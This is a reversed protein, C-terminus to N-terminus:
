QETTLTPNGQSQPEPQRSSWDSKALLDLRSGELSLWQSPLRKSTKTEKRQPGGGAGFLRAWRLGQPSHGEMAGIGIQQKRSESQKMTSEENWQNDQNSESTMMVGEIVSPQRLWWGAASDSESSGGLPWSFLTCQGTVNVSVTKQIRDQSDLCAMQSRPAMERDQVPIRESNIGRGKLKNSPIETMQRFSCASQALQGPHSSPTQHPKNEILRSESLLHLDFPLASLPQLLLVLEQYHTWCPGQWQSLFGWHRYFMQIVDRCSHLHSFWFGLAQSNLLGLIFANFRLSNKNLQSCKKVISVLSHLGQTSPGPRTSALVVDWPHNRRQGVILDLKYPKLEDWLISSIAPCLHKLVLHSLAPNLSSNGVRIKEDPNQSSNEFHETIRDVASSVAKLFAKKQLLDISLPETSADPSLIFKEPPRDTVCASVSQQMQQLKWLFRRPLLEKSAHSNPSLDCGQGSHGWSSPPRPSTISTPCPPSNLSTVSTLAPGFSSAKLMLAPGTSEKEFTLPGIPQFLPVGMPTPSQNQNSGIVTQKQNLNTLQIGHQSSTQGYHQRSPDDSITHPSTVHTWNSRLHKPVPSPTCTSCTDSSSTGLPSPRVLAPIAKSKGKGKSSKCLYQSLLSGLPRQKGAPPQLIFPQIPLSTPRQEKSYRVVTPDATKSGTAICDEHPHYSVKRNDWSTSIAEADKCVEAKNPSFARLLQTSHIESSHDESSTKLSSMSGNEKKCLAVEAYSAVHPQNPPSFMGAGTQLHCPCSPLRPLAESKPSLTFNTIAECSRSLPDKRCLIKEPPGGPNRSTMEDAQEDEKKQVMVDPKTEEGEVQRFLFYEFHPLPSNQSHGESCSTVSSWSPSPSSQTSLDCPVLKYYNQTTATLRTQTQLCSALDSEEMSSLGREMRYINCNPDLAQPSWYFGPNSGEQSLSQGDHFEGDPKDFAHSVAPVANNAKNFITSFNVLVGDSSNCSSDSANDVHGETLSGPHHGSRRFAEQSLTQKHNNFLHNEPGCWDQEEVVPTRRSNWHRHELGELCLGDLVKSMVINQSPLLKTRNEPIDKIVGRSDGHLQFSFDEQYRHLNDGEFDDDEDEDQNSDALFPNQWRPTGRERIQKGKKVKLNLVYNEPTAKSSKEGGEERSNACQLLSSSKVDDRNLGGQSPEPASRTYTLSLSCPHSPHKWGHLLPGQHMILTEGSLNHSSDM